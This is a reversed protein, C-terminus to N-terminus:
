HVREAQLLLLYKLQKWLKNLWNLILGESAGMKILLNFCYESAGRQEAERAWELVDKGSQIRGCDTYCEWHEGWSKTEISM